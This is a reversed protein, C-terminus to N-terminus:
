RSQKKKLYIDKVKIKVSKIFDFMSWIYGSLSESTFLCVCVVYVLYWGGAVFNFWLLVYYMFTCLTQQMIINAGGWVLRCTGLMYSCGAIQRTVREETWMALYSNTLLLQKVQKRHVVVSCFSINDKDQTLVEVGRAAAQSLLYLKFRILKMLNLYFILNFYLKFVHTRINSINIISGCWILCSIFFWILFGCIM